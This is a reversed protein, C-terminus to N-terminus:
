YCGSYCELFDFNSSAEKCITIEKATLEGYKTNDCISILKELFISYDNEEDFLNYSMPSYWYYDLCDELFSDENSIMWDCKMLNEINLNNINDETCISVLSDVEAQCKPNILVEKEQDEKGEQFQCGSLLIILM